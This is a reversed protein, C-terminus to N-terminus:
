KKRNHPLDVFPSGRIVRILVFLNGKAIIFALLINKNAKLM